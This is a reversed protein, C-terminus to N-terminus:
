AYFFGAGSSGAFLCTFHQVKWPALHRSVVFHNNHRLSESGLGHDRRRGRRHQPRRRYLPVQKLLMVVIIDSRKKEASKGTFFPMFSFGTKTETTKSEALGGLIIVDGDSDTIRTSEDRKALTPLGNVGTDTKVFDSIQQQIQMDIVKERIQFSVNFLVGISRYEVSQVPQGDQYSVSGLM